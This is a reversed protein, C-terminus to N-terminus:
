SNSFILIDEGEGFFNKVLAFFLLLSPHTKGDSRINEERNFFTIAYLNICLV